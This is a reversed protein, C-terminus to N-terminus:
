HETKEHTWILFSCWVFRGKIPTMAFHFFLFILPEVAKIIHIVQKKCWMTGTPRVTASWNKRRGRPTGHGATTLRTATELQHNHLWKFRVNRRRRLAVSRQAKAAPMLVEPSSWNPSNCCSSPPRKGRGRQLAAMTPSWPSCVCTANLQNWAVQSTVHAFAASAALYNM